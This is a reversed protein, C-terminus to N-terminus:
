GEEDSSSNNNAEVRASATAALIEQGLPDSMDGRIRDWPNNKEAGVTFGLEKGAEEFRAPYQERLLRGLSLFAATIEDDPHASGASGNSRVSNQAGGSIPANGSYISTNSM